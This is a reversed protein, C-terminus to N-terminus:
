ANASRCRCIPQIAAELLRGLTFTLGATLMTRALRRSVSCQGPRCAVLVGALASAIGPVATRVPAM